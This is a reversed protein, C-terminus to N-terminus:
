HRHPWDHAVPAFGHDPAAGGRLPSAGPRLLNEPRRPITRSNPGAPAGIPPGVPLGVPPNVPRRGIARTLGAHSQFPSADGSTSEIPHGPGGASSRALAAVPPVFQRAPPPQGSAAGRPGVTLRDRPSLLQGAGTVDRPNSVFAPQSAMRQVAGAPGTQRGMRSQSARSTARPLGVPPSRRGARHVGSMREQIQIFSRNRREAASQSVTFHQREAAVPLYEEPPRVPLQGVGTASLASRQGIIKRAALSRGIVATFIDTQAALSGVARRLTLGAAPRRQHGWGQFDFRHRAETGLPHKPEPSSAGMADDPQLGEM